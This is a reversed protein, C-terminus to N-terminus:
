ALALGIVAWVVACAALAWGFRVAASMQLLTPKSPTMSAKYSTVTYRDLCGKVGASNANVQLRAQTYDAGRARLSDRPRM